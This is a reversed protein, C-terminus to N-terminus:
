KQQLQRLRELEAQLEALRQEAAARGLAEAEARQAEAEARQEALRMQKKVQKSAKSMQVYDGIPEGTEDYCVLWNNHIGLWVRVPELWLRGQEDLPMTEYQGQNLRYGILSYHTYGRRIKADVIVYFDVGVEAYEIKKDIMDVRRTNPSIIEVILTPRTGEKVEDFTAWNDKGQVHFIVSIDPSHPTIERKAWAVRTDALVLAGPTDALQSMFVNLLYVIFKEHEDSHVRFDGAEPHLVDWLTLPQREFVEEGQENIRPVERWGYEFRDLKIPEPPVRQSRLRSLWAPVSRKKISAQTNTTM